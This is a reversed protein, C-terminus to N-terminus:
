AAQDLVPPDLVPRGGSPGKISRLRKGRALDAAAMVARHSRKHPDIGWFMFRRAIRGLFFHNYTLSLIFTSIAVAYLEALQPELNKLDEPIRNNKPVPRGEFRGRAIHWVLAPLVDCRPLLLSFFLLYAVVSDPVRDDGAEALRCSAKYFDARLRALARVDRVKAQWFVVISLGVLPILVFLIIMM